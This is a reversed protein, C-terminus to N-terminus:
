ASAIRARARSRSLAFHRAGLRGAGGEFAVEGLDFARVRLARPIAQARGAVTSLDLAPSARLM